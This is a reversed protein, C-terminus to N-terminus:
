KFSFQEHQPTNAFYASKGIKMLQVGAASYTSCSTVETNSQAISTGHQKSPDFTVGIDPSQVQTTPSNANLSVDM